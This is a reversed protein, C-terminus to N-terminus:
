QLSTLAVGLAAAAIPELDAQAGAFHFTRHVHTASQGAALEAGPSSTEIEYFGGLKPKGPGPSGDNYSNVADGGFPDRQTEWMSNVYPREGSPKDFHVVTLLRKRPSYSGLVSKARKPSLGIKSRHDGDCSFVLYGEREHVRLRDEPVKGFYADNVIPAASANKEFPVVVRADAAPAYMGLIWISVLGRDKTWAESGVNTIRNESEFAVFGIRDSPSAGLRTAADALSLVRVTREVLVMFSAGSWNTVSLRRRFTVKDSSRTVVEWEGEQLAHPTQWRDFEFPQGRPFYLGFQGAEPGLWFRDEGGYNDFPTGVRGSEIFARHIWGLSPGNLGTASTMVRGQYKASVAVKGGGPADLVIIEGHKALFAIDDAFSPEVPAKGGSSPGGASSRPPAAGGCALISVATAQALITCLRM